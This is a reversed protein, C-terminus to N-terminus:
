NNGRHRVAFKCPESKVITGSSDALTFANCMFANKNLSKLSFHALLFIHDEVSLM